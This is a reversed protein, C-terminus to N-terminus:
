HLSLYATRIKKHHKEHIRWIATITDVFVSWRGPRSRGKPSRLALTMNKDIGDGKRHVNDLLLAM